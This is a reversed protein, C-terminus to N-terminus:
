SSTPYCQHRERSVYTAVNEDRERRRKRRRRQAEKATERRGANNWHLGTEKGGADAANDGEEANPNERVKNKQLLFGGHGDVELTTTPMSISQSGIAEKLAKVVPSTSSVDQYGDEGSADFQVLYEPECVLAIM